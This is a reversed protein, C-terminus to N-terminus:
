TDELVGALAMYSAGDVFSDEKDSTTARCVKLWVMMLAVQKPTLTADAIVSWGEAIDKCNKHPNGYDDYREGELLSQAEGLIKKIKPDSRSM